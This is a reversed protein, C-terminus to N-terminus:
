LLSMEKLWAVHSAQALTSTELVVLVQLLGRTCGERRQDEDRGSTSKFGLVTQVAWRSQPVGGAGPLEALRGWGEAGRGVGGASSYVASLPDQHRYQLGEPGAVAGVPHAQGGAPRVGGKTLM